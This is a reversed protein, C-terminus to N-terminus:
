CAAALDESENAAYGGDRTGLSGGTQTVAKKKKKGGTSKGESKDIAKQVMTRIKALDPDGTNIVPPVLSVTAIKQSKAKLALQAFSALEGRPLNTEIMGSTAKAIDGFNRV